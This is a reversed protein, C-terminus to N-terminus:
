QRAIESASYVSAGSENVSVVLCSEPVRGEKKLARVFAETERGATGNGIAIAEVRHRQGLAAGGRGAAESQRQPEHPYVGSHALLKGTDDLVVLKCGTRFGPDLALV